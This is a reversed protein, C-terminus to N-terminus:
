AAEEEQIRIAEQKAEEAELEQQERDEEIADKRDVHMSEGEFEVCDDDRVYGEDTHTCEDSLDHETFGWRGGYYTDSLEVCDDYYHYEDLRDVYYSDERCTVCVSLESGRVYMSGMNDGNCRDGCHECESTEDELMGGESDAVHNGDEEVLFYSGKDGIRDCDGDIYPMLYSDKAEIQKLQGGELSDVTIGISKVMSEARELGYVRSAHVSGDDRVVMVFRAVYPYSSDSSNDKLLGLVVNASDEYVMTPHLDTGGPGEGHLDYVDSSKSMCSTLSMAEAMLRYHEPIYSNTIHLSYLKPKNSLQTALYTIQQEAVGLKSLLRTLKSPGWTKVSTTHGLESKTLELSYLDGVKSLITNSKARTTSTLWWTKSTVYNGSASGITGRHDYLTRLALLEPKGDYCTNDTAALAERWLMDDCVASYVLEGVHGM